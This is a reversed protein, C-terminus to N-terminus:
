QKLLTILFAWKDFKAEMVKNTVLNLYNSSHEISKSFAQIIDVAKEPTIGKNFVAVGQLYFRLMCFLVTLLLYEEYINSDAKFLFLRHFVQNVLYNELIYSHENTFPTYYDNIRETYKTITDKDMSNLDFAQLVENNYKQFREHRVKTQTQLIEILLKFQIESSKPLKNISSNLTPSNLRRKFDTVVELIQSRNGCSSVSDLRECFLGLFIMRDSVTLNRNQLIEITFTRIEWFCTSWVDNSTNIKQKSRHRIDQMEETLDFQMLDKNLLALRAAEPCSMDASLEVQQDVINFVRPYTLCTESLYEEGYKLQIECLGDQHFVCAAENTQICAVNGVPTNSEEKIYKKIKESLEKDRIKKYKKHTQKDIYVKWGSCCTDSCAAGICQFENMYQPKLVVMNKKM